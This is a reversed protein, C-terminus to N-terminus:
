HRCTFKYGTDPCPRDRETIPRCCWHCRPCLAARLRSLEPGSLTFRLAGSLSRTWREPKLLEADLWALVEPSPDPTPEM